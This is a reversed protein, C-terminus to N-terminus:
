LTQEVMVYLVPCGLSDNPTTLCAPRLRSAVGEIDPLLILCTLKVVCGAQLSVDSIELVHLAAGEKFQLIILPLVLSM